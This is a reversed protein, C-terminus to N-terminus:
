SVTCVKLRCGSCEWFFLMQLLINVFHALSFAFVRRPAWCLRRSVTSARVVTAFGKDLAVHIASM